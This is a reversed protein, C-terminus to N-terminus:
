KAELSQPLLHANLVYAVKNKMLINLFSNSSTNQRLLLIQKLLLIKQFFIFSFIFSISFLIIMWLRHDEDEGPDTLQIACVIILETDSLECANLDEAFRFMTNVLNETLFHRMWLRSYAIDHYLRLYSEGNEFLKASQIQFSLVFIASGRATSM